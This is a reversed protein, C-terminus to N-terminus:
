FLLHKPIEIKQSEGRFPKDNGVVKLQPTFLHQLVSFLHTFSCPLPNIPTVSYSNCPHYSLLAYFLPIIKKFSSYYHPPSPISTNKDLLSITTLCICYPPTALFIRPWLCDM